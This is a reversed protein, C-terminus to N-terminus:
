RRVSAPKAQVSRKAASKSLTTARLTLTAKADTSKIQASLSQEGPKSGLSWQAVVTGRQDTTIKAPTVAGARPTFIVLADPVPNDYPDTVTVRIPKDLRKGALGTSPPESFAVKAAGLPRAKASVELPPQVGDVRATMRQIGAARGLTWRISVRGASDTTATSDSVSGAHPILTVRVGPVGNGSRDTVRIVLAKKLLNGVTGGQAAGNVVTTAAAAGARALATVMFPPMTRANGIQVRLRQAGSKPGLTWQASAEGLSDTRQELTLLTGGDRTIWAVPVDALATGLSDTVKIAIPGPLAEGVQGALSDSVSMIRTNSPDPDAESIVALTGEVGTTAVVLRQRGPVNGLTWNTRVEGSDNTSDSAPEVKGLGEALVFQVVADSVPRGGRSLVQAVIPQPLLRGAPARQDAGAVLRLAAPVPVTEVDIQATKGEVTASLTTRGPTVGTAYGFSDVTAVLTDGSHWTVPRGAVAHGRADAARAIVKRREGEPLPLISDPSIDVRNVRPSVTIEAHTEINRVAAIITATGPGRAVVTGSSDVSAVMLNVSRWTVSAGAVTSGRKDTVTTALNITDGISFVTDALPFVRLRHAVMDAATTALGSGATLGMSHAYSLISVLAAGTTVSAAVWKGAHRTWSLVSQAQKMLTPKTSLPHQTPDGLSRGALPKTGHGM